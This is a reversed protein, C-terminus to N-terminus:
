WMIQYEVAQATVGSGQAVSTRGDRSTTPSRILRRGHGAASGSSRIGVHVPVLRVHDLEAAVPRRVAQEHHARAIPGHRQCRVPEDIHEPPRALVQPDHEEVDTVRFLMRPGGRPNDVRGDSHAAPHVVLRGPHEGCVQIGGQRRANGEFSHKMLRTGCDAVLGVASNWLEKEAVSAIRM